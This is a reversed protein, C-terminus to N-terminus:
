ANERMLRRGLATIMPAEVFRILGEWHNKGSGKYSGPGVVEPYGRRYAMALVNAREVCDHEWETNRYGCNTCAVMFKIPAVHAACDLEFMRWWDQKNLILFRDGNHILVDANREPSAVFRRNINWHDWHQTNRKQIIWAEKPMNVLKKLGWATTPLTIEFLEHNIEITPM